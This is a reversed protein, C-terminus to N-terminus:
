WKRPRGMKKKEPEQIQREYNIVWRNMDRIVNINCGSCNGPRIGTIETVIEKLRILQATEGVWDSENYFILLLEYLTFRKGTSEKLEAYIEASTRM